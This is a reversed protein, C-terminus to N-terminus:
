KREQLWGVKGREGYKKRERKDMMQRQKEEGIEQEFQVFM